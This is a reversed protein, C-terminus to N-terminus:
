KHGIFVGLLSVAGSIILSWVAAAGKLRNHSAELKSVRAELKQTNVVSLDLKDSVAKTTAEIRGLTKNQDLLTNFILENNDAM